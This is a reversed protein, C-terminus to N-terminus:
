INQKTWRKIDLVSLIAKEEKGNLVAKICFENKISKKPVGDKYKHTCADIHFGWYLSADPMKPTEVKIVTGEWWYVFQGYRIKGDATKHFRNTSVPVYGKIKSAQNISRRSRAVSITSDPADKVQVPKSAEARAKKRKEKTEETEKFRISRGNERVHGTGPSYLLNGTTLRAM